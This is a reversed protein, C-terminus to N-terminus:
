HAAKSPRHDTESIGAIAATLWEVAGPTKQWDGGNLPRGAMRTTWASCQICSM